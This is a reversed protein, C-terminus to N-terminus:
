EIWSLIESVEMFDHGLRLFCMFIGFFRPACCRLFDRWQFPRLVFFVWGSTSFSSACVRFRWRQGSPNITTLFFRLCPMAHQQLFIPINFRMSPKSEFCWWPPVLQGDHMGFVTAGFHLRYLGTIALQWEESSSWALPEMTCWEEFRPVASIWQQIWAMNMTCKLFVHQHFIMRALLYYSGPKLFLHFLHTDTDTHTDAGWATHHSTIHNVTICDFCHLGICHMYDFCHLGICHM